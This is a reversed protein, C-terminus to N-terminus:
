RWISAQGPRHSAWSASDVWACAPCVLRGSADHRWGAGLARERLDWEDLPLVSSYREICNGSECWLIPVRVEGGFIARMPRWWRM